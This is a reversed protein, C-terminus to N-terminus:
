KKLGDVIKGVIDDKDSIFEFSSANPHAELFSEPGISLVM